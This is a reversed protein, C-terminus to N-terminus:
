ESDGPVIEILEGISCDLAGCVKEVTELKTGELGDGRDLPLIASRSLGTIRMLETLNKIGKDAMRHRLMSKLM